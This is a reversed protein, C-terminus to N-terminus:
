GTAYQIFSNFNGEWKEHWNKLIIDAPCCDNFTLLKLPELYKHDDKGEKYLYTYAINIIEKAIDSVKYDGLKANLGQRPVSERAYAFDEYKFKKFLLLTEAISKNNYFLGKYIAPIAYKLAGVQSDHNRIEIYTNLRAEPFYINSHLKFDDITAIYNEYGEKIFKDFTIKQNIEIINNDRIIYLMPINLLTDVYDGFCFEYDNDFLKKHVLGCRNNDTLLWSLARYSKYMSNCGNYIPSNAFMASVVPSLKLALKLKKMADQESEYDMSVQISATEKMMNQLLDGALTKSMIEYRKKPIFDIERYTSLPSIGYNLFTIGLKKAIPLIKKDLKEIEKQINGVTKQPTLSIEFQGGPELTITTDGKKLGTISEFDTIYGWEDNYAIQRLLRYIGNEGYYSVAKYSDKNILLREYEIGIKFDDRTKCGSEYLKTLDKKSIILDRYLDLMGM